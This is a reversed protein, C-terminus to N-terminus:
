LYHSLSGRALFRDKNLINYFKRMEPEIKQKLNPAKQGQM